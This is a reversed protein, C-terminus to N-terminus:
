PVGRGPPARLTAGAARTMLLGGAVALLGLPGTVGVVGDVLKRYNAFRIAEPGDAKNNWTQKTAGSAHNRPDNLPLWPDMGFRSCCSDLGYRRCCASLGTSQYGQPSSAHDLANVSSLGTRTEMPYALQWQHWTMSRSDNESGITAATRLLYKM